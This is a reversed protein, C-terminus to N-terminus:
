EKYLENLSSMIVIACIQTTCLQMKQPSIYSVHARLLSYHLAPWLVHFMLTSCVEVAYLFRGHVCYFCSIDYMRTERKDRNVEHVSMLLMFAHFSRDM